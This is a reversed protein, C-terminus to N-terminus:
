PRYAVSINVVKFLEYNFSLIITQAYSVSVCAEVQAENMIPFQEDCPVARHVDRAEVCVDSDLDAASNRITYIL